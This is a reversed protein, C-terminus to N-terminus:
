FLATAQIRGIHVIPLKESQRGDYNITLQLGNLLKQTYSVNWYYNNGPQLADLMEYALPTNTDANYRIKNYRINVQITRNSVKSYRTELAVEMNHSMEQAGKVNNKSGYAGSLTVRLNHSPQYALEPRLRYGRVEYNRNNLYDSASQRNLLESALRVTFAKGINKRSILQHLLNKRAEFGNSLLQKQSQQNYSYELGYDSHQRNWFLSNRFNANAFLLSSDAIDGYLPNLRFSFDNRLSSKDITYYTSSSFKSLQKRWGGKQRWKAPATMNLRYLYNSSYSSVYQNTPVFVKLFNKEDFNIAEYFENLQQIGDGNDDRWTFNGQGTPVPIY